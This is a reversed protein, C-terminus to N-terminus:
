SYGYFIIEMELRHAIHMELQAGKSLYWGPLLVIADCTALEEIDRKM